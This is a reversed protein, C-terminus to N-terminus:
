RRRRERAALSAYHAICQAEIEKWDDRPVLRDAGNFLAGFSLAGGEVLDDLEGISRAALIRDVREQDLFGFGDLRLPSTGGLLEDVTVGLGQALRQLKLAGPEMKAAELDRVFSWSVGCREGLQERTLHQQERLERVRRALAEILTSNDHESSM